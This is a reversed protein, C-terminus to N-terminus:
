MYTLKVHREERTSGSVASAVVETNGFAMKLDVTREKRPKDRAGITITLMAVKDRRLVEQNRGPGGPRREDVVVTRPRQAEIRPDVLRDDVRYLEFDIVEQDARVPILGARTCVQGVEVREGKQVLPYLINVLRRGESTVFVHCEDHVAPDYPEAGLYAYSWRVMREKIVRPQLAFLGAGMVVVKGPRKPLIVARSENEFAEKLMKQLIKSEAFGGAVMIADIRGVAALLKTVHAVTSGIVDTFFRRTIAPPIRLKKAKTFSVKQDDDTLGLRSNYAAILEEM